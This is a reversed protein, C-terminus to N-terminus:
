DINANCYTKIGIFQKFYLNYFLIRIDKEIEIMLFIKKKNKRNLSAFGLFFNGFLVKSKWYIIDCKWKPTISLSFNILSCDPYFNRNSQESLFIKIVLISWNEHSFCRIESTTCSM